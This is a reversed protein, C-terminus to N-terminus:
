PARNRNRALRSVELGLVLGVHGLGVEAVLRQFGLRDAVRAGSHGLDQDIVVIREEAWGFAQARERLAYQRSTSETNEMVRLFNLATIGPDVEPRLVPQAQHLARELFDRAARPTASIEDKLEPFLWSESLGFLLLQPHERLSDGLLHLCEVLGAVAREPSSTDIALPCPNM